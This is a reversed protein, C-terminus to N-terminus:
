SSYGFHFRDSSQKYNSSQADGLKAIASPPASRVKARMSCARLRGRPGVRPAWCCFTQPEQLGATWGLLCLVGVASDDVKCFHLDGSPQFITTEYQQDDTPM